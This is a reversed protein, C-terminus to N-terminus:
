FCPNQTPSTDFILPEPFLKSRIPRVQSNLAVAEVCSLLKTLGNSWFNPLLRILSQDDYPSNKLADKIDRQLRKDSAMNSSSDIGYTYKTPRHRLQVFYIFRKSRRFLFIILGIILESINMVAAPMKNNSLRTNVIIFM